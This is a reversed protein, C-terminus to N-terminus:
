RWKDLYEKVDPYECLLRDPCKTCDNEKDATKYAWKLLSYVGVIVLAMGVLVLAMGVLVGIIFGNINL